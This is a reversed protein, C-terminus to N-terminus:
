QLTTPSTLIRCSEFRTGYYLTFNEHVIKFLINLLSNSGSISSRKGLCLHARPQGEAGRTQKTRVHRRPVTRGKATCNQMTALLVAPWPMAPRSRRSGQHRFVM